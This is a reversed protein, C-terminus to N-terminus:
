HGVEQGYCGLWSIEPHKLVMLLSEKKAKTKAIRADLTDFGTRTAFLKDFEAELRASEEPTPQQRYALLEAYFDWFQKRLDQLLQLHPVLVPLLKKYHRGEHVWCLALEEAIWNFPPADDCLLWRVLPLGEEAHYAAVAAASLIAQRQPENLQPWHTDLQEVFTQEDGDRDSSAAALWTRTAKSLLTSELYGLAEDNLRFRRERGNRLVDLVSLRDKQPTTTYLTYLPNCVSNCHQNQGDVRTSTQDTHQWPSSGLGAECVEEKEAHFPEQGKSLQNSLQGPSIQVGINAYLDQIQPESMGGGYYLTLTLAKLGPGFQGEYGLPLEALYTKGTSDAWYKEKHFCVNDARFVVDQVVGDEYGKFEADAPLIAKDVELTQERQIEITARKARKQRPKPQRREQESSYTPQAPKPKNGKIKPKGQEGKLRNNEDRLRQNELQANRLAASVTEILNMLRVILERANEDQINSLDIPKLEDLM